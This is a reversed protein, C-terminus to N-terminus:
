PIQHLALYALLSAIVIRPKGVPWGPAQSNSLQGPLRFRKRQLPLTLPLEFSRKTSWRQLIAERVEDVHQADGRGHLNPHVDAVERRDDHRVHRGLSEIVLLSDAPGAP